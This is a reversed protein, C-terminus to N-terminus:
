LSFSYDKEINVQIILAAIRLVIGLLIRHPSNEHSKNKNNYM